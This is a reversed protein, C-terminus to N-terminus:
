KWSVTFQVQYPADAAQVVTYTLSADPHKAIISADLFQKANHTCATDLATACSQDDGPLQWSKGDPAFSVSADTYDASVYNKLVDNLAQVSTEIGAYPELDSHIQTVHIAVSFVGMAAIFFIVLAVLVEILAAGRLSHM